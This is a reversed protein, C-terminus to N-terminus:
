GIQHYGRSLSSLNIRAPENRKNAGPWLKAEIFIRDIIVFLFSYFVVTGFVGLYFRYAAVIAKIFQASAAADTLKFELVELFDGVGLLTQQAVFLL